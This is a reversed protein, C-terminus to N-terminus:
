ILCLEFLLMGTCVCACVKEFAANDANIVGVPSPPTTISANKKNASLAREGNQNTKGKRFDSHANAPM